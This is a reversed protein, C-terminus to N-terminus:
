GRVVGIWEVVSVQTHFSVLVNSGCIILDSETRTVWLNDAMDNDAVM